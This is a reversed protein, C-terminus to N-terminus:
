AREVVPALYWCASVRRELRRMWSLRRPLLLSPILPTSPRELQSTTMTQVSIFASIKPIVLTLNFMRQICQLRGCVQDDEKYPPRFSTEKSLLMQSHLIAEQARKQINKIHTKREQLSAITRPAEGMARPVAELLLEFPPIKTTHSPRSNLAFQTIPLWRAWDDHQENCFIRLYTELTQNTRERGVFRFLQTCPLLWQTLTVRWHNPRQCIELLFGCSHAIELLRNEGVMGAGGDWCRIRM